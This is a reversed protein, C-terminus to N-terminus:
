VVSYHENCKFKTIYVFSSSSSFFCEYFYSKWPLILVFTFCVFSFQLFFLSFLFILWGHALIYIKYPDSSSVLYVVPSVYLYTNYINLLIMFMNIQSIKSKRNFLYGLSGHVWDVKIFAVLCKTPSFFLVHLYKTESYKWLKLM